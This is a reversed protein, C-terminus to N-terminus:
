AEPAPTARAADALTKLALRLAGGDFVPERFAVRATADGLALDLGHPDLGTARWPGDPMACLATAYLRLAESHDANMHAIASADLADFAARDPIQALIYAAEGDFARAFGGNLHMMEPEIRQFSFDAFDAYLAAKPHRALFRRRASEGTTKEARGQLTLRPHALPDGKGGQVFLISCRADMLLNKTHNSLASILIVPAGDCDTTTSVLTTMPFGRAADLTGLSAIRGMRLLRRGLNVPDFDAPQRQDRQIPPLSQDPMPILIARPALATM